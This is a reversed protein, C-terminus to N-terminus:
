QCHFSEIQQMGRLFEDIELRKKGQMQLTKVVIYGDSAAVKMYKKRDSVITGPALQHASIEFESAFIKLSFSKDGNLMTTFAAPYPSLGRILNHIAETSKNWDIKCTETFLKPAPKLMGDAPMQQPIQPYNGAEIAKLTKVVLVSGTMMLKDHVTGANDDPEINVKEQYIIKGTDIEHEIFFTSVGTQKEGNIVAWNIPAAGRYHPLLSAHLNFTGIKPLSWVSEPLMRFAVVVQVDPNLAKLTAQFEADKLKEPQLINLNRELAFQKVASFSLSLGRGAPKDPATIVAVVNFGADLIARLPEVAFGPTGM